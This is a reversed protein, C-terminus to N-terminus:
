EDDDSQEMLIVFPVKLSERLMYRWAVRPRDSIPSTRTPSGYAVIGYRRALVGLRLMHFPDSVLIASRAAHPARPAAAAHLAGGPASTPASRGAASDVGRALAGTRSRATREMEAMLVSAARLSQETTRGESEMLIASDPVGHTVAYRRGTAAESTRDGPARGGTPRHPAPWGEQAWLRSRMTSGPACCRRRAATTSRRAMVIIRRPRARDLNAGVVVAM